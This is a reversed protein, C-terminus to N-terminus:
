NRAGCSTGLDNYLKGQGAKFDTAEGLLEM